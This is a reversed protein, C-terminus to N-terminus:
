KENNKELLTDMGMYIDKGRVKGRREKKKEKQGEM